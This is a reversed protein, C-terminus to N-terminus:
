LGREARPAAISFLAFVLALAGLALGPALTEVGLNELAWIRVFGEGAPYPLLLMTLIPAVLGALLPGPIRKRRGWGVAYFVFVLFAAIPYVYVLPPSEGGILMAAAGSAALILAVVLSRLWFAGEGVKPFLFFVLLSGVGLGAGTLLGLLSHASCLAFAAGGGALGGALYLLLAPHFQRGHRLREGAGSGPKSYRLLNDAVEAARAPRAVRNKDLMDLVLRELGPPVPIDPVLKHLPVVPETLHKSVFEMVDDTEFPPRGSLMEYFIAGVSYIDSRGDVPDGLIQEPAMYKPTGFVVGTKTKVAGDMEKMDETGIFKAVGFDLVKVLDSGDERTEVKINDPKLDRHVIGHKHAEALARLIQEGIRSVRDYPIPGHEEIFGRLSKGGCFDMAIFPVGNEDDGSDLIRVANEHRFSGASRAEQRFRAVFDGNALLHKHLFKVAAKGNTAKDEAFYVLGMGGEGLRSTIEFREGVVNGIFPDTM